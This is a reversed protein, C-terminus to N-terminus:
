KLVHGWRLFRIILHGKPLNSLEEESVGKLFILLAFYIVVAAVLSVMTAFTNSATWKHLAFYIFATAVGMLGASVTPIAFSTIMEQKYDLYKEISIWNLICVLLAFTVNGIVLSYTGLPTFKLLIFVLVVHVGLSIASNIVPIKLKNIGQLISTTVTSLSYFVISISGLRILNADLQHSDPFLMKLIPFALVTLGVASPIAIIMNFKIAIHTKNRIVHDMGKVKSETISTIIAAGIASAIAVPVNTLTRFKNNYKGLLVSINEVTYSTGPSYNSFVAGEFQAVEKTAMINGFMANDIVGSIHYVTQSIIIPSITVLLMKMIDSYSEVYTNQDRRIQRMLTPRYIIYVFVLFLLGVIAGMLTGLTAGAAGYAAVNDSASFNKMLLYAMSISVVANVIQEIIQSVATPIMTNKGQYFGRFVGMIAFVFLTPALVKIPLVAYPVKNVVTAFFDAGFYLLLSSILGVIAAFGLASIFIRYSNRHEKVVGKAAVLKSVALPLSYTSLILIIGYLEYAISYAGMGEDGIIRT